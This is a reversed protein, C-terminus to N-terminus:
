MLYDIDGSAVTLFGNYFAEPSNDMRDYVSLAESSKAFFLSTSFYLRDCLYMKFHVYSGDQVPEMDIKYEIGCILRKYERMSKNIATRCLSKKASLTWVLERGQETIGAYQEPTATKKADYRAGEADDSIYVHGGRVLNEIYECIEMPELATSAVLIQQLETLTVRDPLEDIIFLALM